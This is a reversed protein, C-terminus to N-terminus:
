LEGIREKFSTLYANKADMEYLIKLVELGEIKRKNNDCKNLVIHFERNQVNKMIGFKSLLIQALTIPTIHTTKKLQQTNVLYEKRFCVEKVPKYLADLGCVGIIINSEKFIVPEQLNPVKCPYGKAGDAEILIMDANELCEKYLSSDPSTLKGNLTPTGIIAYNGCAWNYEVEKYNKSYLRNTPHWIHTSTTVLVKKKHNAHHTALATMLTSKGGAGVLSVIPKEFNNFSFVQEFNLPLLSNKTPNFQYIPYM